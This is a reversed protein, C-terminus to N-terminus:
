KARERLDVGYKLQYRDFMAELDDSRRRQGERWEVVVVCVFVTAACQVESILWFWLSTM